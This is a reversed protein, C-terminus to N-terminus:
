CRHTDALAKLLHKERNVDLSVVFESILHITKALKDSHSLTTPLTLVYEEEEDDEDSSSTLNIDM